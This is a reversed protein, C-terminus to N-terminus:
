IACIRLSFLRRLVHTVNQLKQQAWSWKRFWPQSFSPNSKMSNCIPRQPLLSRQPIHVQYSNFINEVFTMYNFYYHLPRRKINEFIIKLLLGLIIAENLDFTPTGTFYEIFINCSFLRTWILNALYHLHNLCNIFDQAFCFGFEGVFITYYENLQLPSLNNPKTQNSKQKVARWCM